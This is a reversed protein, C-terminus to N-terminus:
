FCTDLNSPNALNKNSKKALCDPLVSPVFSLFFSHIFCFLFYLIFSPLFFNYSPLIFFKTKHCILRQLNNLALDM